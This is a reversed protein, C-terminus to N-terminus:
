ILFNVSSGPTNPGKLWKMMIRMWDAWVKGARPEYKVLRYGLAKLASQAKPKDDAKIADLVEYSLSIHGLIDVATNRMNDNLTQAIEDCNFDYQETGIIRGAMIAEGFKEDVLSRTFLFGEKHMSTLDARVIIRQDNALNIYNTWREKVWVRSPNSETLFELM